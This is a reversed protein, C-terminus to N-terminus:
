EPDAIKESRILDMLSDVARQANEESVYTEGWAVIEGNGGLIHFFFQGNEAELIEYQADEKGNERVSEIGGLASTKSKYGESQLVIEGNGAVLHFYSQKDLGKFVEFTAGGTEAAQARNTLSVIKKVTKTAKTANSKTSYMESTAVIEGNGAVVNFYYTGELSESVDFADSDVANNRVSEVGKEASQRSTYGESQLVKEGNAALLHFYYQGDLGKFTEFTGPKATLDQEDGPAADGDGGCGIMGFSLGLAAVAFWRTVGLKIDM